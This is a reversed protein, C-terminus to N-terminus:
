QVIFAVTKKVSGGTELVAFYSGAKLDNIDLKIQHQGANQEGMKKLLVTQGITNVLRVTVDTAEKLQFTATINRQNTPNPFVTWQTDNADNEKLGTTTARVTQIGYWLTQDLTQNITVNFTNASIPLIKRQSKPKGTPDLLILFVSDAAINLTLNVTTPLIVTPATGWNRNVTTTGTWIMNTNQQKTSVTLLSRGGNKLPKDDLAVWTISGFETANVLTLDGVKSNPNDALFGTIGVYQPTATTLFGKDTNLNTEGTSTTLSNGTPTPLTAFDTTAAAEFTKTRVSRTLGLRKSYPTYQNWRGNDDSKPSKRLFNTAYSIDIPNADPLVLGKRFAYACTPFLSMISNDNTLSFYGPLRDTGIESALTTYDFFMVADCGHFSGYALFSAPMESRFRNPAAHNYESITYPKGALQLGSFIGTIADFNANKVMSQNNCLWNNDDWPTGPFQPHDWYAHDDLYSLNVHESADALGSFANTGTIAATVGLTTKLYKALDEFHKKQLGIYFEAIDGVRNDTFALRDRWDIRKINGKALDEAALLGQPEPKGLSVADFWFTGATLNPNFSIRGQGVNDESAKFTFSFTQWQTTLNYEFNTYWTYPDNDRMLAVSARTNKDAKAAFKLTYLSDKKLSFGYNKFQIHWGLTSPNTVTLKASYAGEYKTTADATLSTVSTGYSELAWPAGLKAKEFGGDTLLENSGGVVVGETYATNLATQTSYKTKLYANFLSDLLVSHRFLINGGQASPKLLDDKWFGYLSNENNMEMMALVPDKALSIGTYPNVHAMLQEAYEKQLFQLYPDFITVGKGFEPLSDAGAVGDVTRFTRSVNLNMNVYINQKKLEAIFFELKDLTVPNFKRTGAGAVYNFFLSGQEGEWPNDLHHFRVLNIGMKRMRQAIARAKDKPPFASMAGCNVGWFKFPVGSVEFHDGKVTVRDAEGIMKAPFKPLFDVDTSDYASMFFNFGGTFNQGFVSPTTGFNLLWFAAALCANKRLNKM